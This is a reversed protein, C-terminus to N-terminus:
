LGLARGNAGDNARQIKARRSATRDPRAAGSRAGRPPTVCDVAKRAGASTQEVLKPDAPHTTRVCNSGSLLASRTVASIRNTGTYAIFSRRWSPRRLPCEETSAFIRGLPARVSASADHLLM